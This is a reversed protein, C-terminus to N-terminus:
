FIMNCVVVLGTAGAMMAEVGTRGARSTPVTSAAATAATTEATITGTEEAKKGDCHWHGGHAMCGTSETPSPKLSTNSELATTNRRSMNRAMTTSMMAMAGCSEPRPPSLRLLREQRTATGITVM